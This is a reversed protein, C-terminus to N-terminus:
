HGDNLRKEFPSDTQLDPGTHETIKQAYRMKIYFIDFIASVWFWSFDFDLQSFSSM